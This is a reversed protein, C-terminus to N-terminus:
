RQVELFCFVRIGHEVPCGPVFDPSEATGGWKLGPLARREERCSRSKRGIGRARIVTADGAQRSPNGNPKRSVPGNM